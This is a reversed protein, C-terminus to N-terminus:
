LDSFRSEMELSLNASTELGGEGHSTMCAPSNVSRAFTTRETEDCFTFPPTPIHESGSVM